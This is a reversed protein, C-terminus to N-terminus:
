ESILLTIQESQMLHEAAREMDTKTVSQVIVLNPEFFVGGREFESQIEQGLRTADYFNLRYHKGAVILQAESFTGKATVEWEYEEFNSPLALLFDSM